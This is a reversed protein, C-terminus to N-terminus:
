VNTAVDNVMVWQVVWGSVGHGFGYGSETLEWGGLNIRGHLNM